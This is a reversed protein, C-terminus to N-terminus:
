PKTEDSGSPPRRADIRAFRLGPELDEFAAACSLVQEAGAAREGAGLVDLVQLDRETEEVTWGPVGLRKQLEDKPAVRLPRPFRVRATLDLFYLRNHFAFDDLLDVRHGAEPRLDLVEFRDAAFARFGAEADRRLQATITADIPTARDREREPARCAALALLATLTIARM